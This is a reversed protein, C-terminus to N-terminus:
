GFLSFPVVTFPPSVEQATWRRRARSAPADVRGRLATPWARVSATRAAV